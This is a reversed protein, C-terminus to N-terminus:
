PLFLDKGFKMPQHGSIVVAGFMKDHLAQKKPDWAPWVVALVWLFGFTFTGIMGLLLTRVLGVPGGLTTGDVDRVLKLGTLAKGPSQGRSGNLWAVYAWAALGVLGGPDGLLGFTVLNVVITVGLVLLADILTAAVREGWHAYRLQPRQHPLHSPGPVTDQPSWVGPQQQPGWVGPQPPQGWAGPQAQTGSAGPQPPPPAYPPIPSAGATPPQDVPGGQWPQRENPNNMPWSM